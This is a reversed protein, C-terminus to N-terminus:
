PSAWGTQKVEKFRYWNQVLGEPVDGASSKRRLFRLYALM